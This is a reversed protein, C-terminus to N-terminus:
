SSCLKPWRGVIQQCPQQASRPIGAKVIACSNISDIGLAHVCARFQTGLGRGLGGGGVVSAAGTRALWARHLGHLHPIRRAARVTMQQLIGCHMSGHLLACSCMSQAARRYRWTCRHMHMCIGHMPPPRAGHLKRAWACKLVMCRTGDPFFVHLTFTTHLHINHTCAILCSLPGMSHTL